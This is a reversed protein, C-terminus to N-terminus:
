EKLKILTIKNGLQKNFEFHVEDMLKRIFYLGLGDNKRDELPANLDPDEIGDPDFTQGCDQLTITLGKPDIRYTCEINGIGEGGYGHEIINTCAEDVATEVKYTTANDFGAERSAKKCFEAIKVLNKYHGSFSEKNKTSSM